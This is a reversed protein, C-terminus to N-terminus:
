HLRPLASRAARPMARPRVCSVLGSGGAKLKRHRPIVQFTSGPCGVPQFGEVADTRSSDFIWLSPTTLSKWACRRAIAKSANESRSNSSASETETLCPGFTAINVKMEMLGDDRQQPRPDREPRPLPMPGGGSLMSSGVVNYRVDRAHPAVDPPYIYHWGATCGANPDGPDSLVEFAQLVIVNDDVPEPGPASACAALLGLSAMLAARPIASSPFWSVPTEIPATDNMSNEKPQNFM